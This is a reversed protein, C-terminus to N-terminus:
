DDVRTLASANSSQMLKKVRNDGNMRATTMIRISQTWAGVSTNAMIAPINPISQNALQTWSGVAGRYFTRTAYSIFTDLNYNFDNVFGSMGNLDRIQTKVKWVLNEHNSINGEGDPTRPDLISKLETDNLIHKAKVRADMTEIDTMRRTLERDFTRIADLSPYMVVTGVDTKRQPLARVDQREAVYKGDSDIAGARHYSDIALDANPD